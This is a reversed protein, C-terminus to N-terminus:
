KGSGRKGRTLNILTSVEGADTAWYRRSFVDVKLGVVGKGCTKEPRKRVVDTLLSKGEDEGGGL